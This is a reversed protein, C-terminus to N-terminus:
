QLLPKKRNIEDNLQDVITQCHDLKKVGQIYTDRQKRLEDLKNTYIDKFNKLLKLYNIPTVYFKKGTENFYDGTM